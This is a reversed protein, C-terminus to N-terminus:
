STRGFEHTYLDPPGQDKRRFEQVVVALQSVNDLDNFYRIAKQALQYRAEVPAGPAVQRFEEMLGWDFESYGPNKETMMGGQRVLFLAHDM